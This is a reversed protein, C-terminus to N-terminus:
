SSTVTYAYVFDGPYGGPSEKERFHKCSPSAGVNWLSHSLVSYLSCAFAGCLAGNTSDGGFLAVFPGAGSGVWQYDYYKRDSDGGASKQTLGHVGVWMDGIFGNIGPGPGMLVWGSNSASPDFYTISSGDSTDPHASDCTEEDL